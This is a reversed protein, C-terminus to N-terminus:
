LQFHDILFRALGDENNNYETILDACAKTDESGNKLCIGLGAVKLMENDNSMDGFAMIDEMKMDNLKAYNILAKAKNTHKNCFELMIPQTKFCVYGDGIRKKAHDMVMDIKDEPIKFMIKAHESDYFATEDKAIVVKSGNRKSSLDVFWDRRKCLLIGNEVIYPNLDFPRLIDLIEKIWEKHLKDFEYLKQMKGDWLQCGNLGIIIDLPFSLKWNASFHELESVARGSAVGFKIGNEHIREITKCTSASMKRDDNVLTGDIDCVILKYHM